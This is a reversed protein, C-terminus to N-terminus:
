MVSGMIMPVMQITAKLKSPNMWPMAKEKRQGQYLFPKGASDRLMSSIIHGFPQAITWMCPMRHCQLDYILLLISVLPTATAM